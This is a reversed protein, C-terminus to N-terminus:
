PTGCITREREGSAAVRELAALVAMSASEMVAISDFGALFDGERFQRVAALGSDHFRRHPEEVDRFGDLGAYCAHGEGEYYWKGLRCRRHDAFDAVEKDSLCMFVKYIEFKYVLHDIKAVEVFSRLASASIAGEMSQSLGLLRQMGRTAEQGERSFELTKGAWQEMQERTVQTEQQIAEVLGSIESTAKSTREALKRVEDAVVAFGRGQEGARAAEIAANLALLNTQDAVEKILQIIGGIQSARDSLAEVKRSMTTTDDSITTMNRAMSEIAAQNDRSVGAAETASTKELNMLNAIALQSRQIELFSEGFSQMTRYIRACKQIERELEAAQAEAAGRRGREEELAAADDAARRELAAVRGELERVQQRAARGFM